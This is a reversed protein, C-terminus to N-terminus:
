KGPPADPPMNGADNPSSGNSKSVNCFYPQKIPEAAMITKEFFSLAFSNAMLAMLNKFM